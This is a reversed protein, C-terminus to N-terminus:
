KVVWGKEGRATQVYQFEGFTALVLLAAGAKLSDVATAQRDPFDLLATPGDMKRSRLPKTLPEVTSASLYGSLGNPLVARYWNAAGATIQIATHQSLEELPIAKTDPSPRISTKKPAIRVWTGLREMNATVPAPETTEQRVFPYPDIAGRGTYIGFHLHSPTTRANGTNGVLGLTDGIKVVQGPRVLQSDLHAYYLSIGRKLDQLWVVKGGLNNENVRTIYGETAAVAPTLKPAFIDIGEHRRRGADRSVGYLSGVAKNNRGQVPFSLVPQRQITLTYQVSRLLEPQLRVLLVGAKKVEYELTGVTSDAFAVRRAKESATQDAENEMEYLDMFVRVPQRAQTELRILVKDGRVVNLRYGVAAAKDAAFYGTERFPLSIRLSDRLARQGADLWDQGLATKELQAKRLGDVYKEHPSQKRFAESIPKMGGCGGLLGMGFLLLLVFSRKRRKMEKRHM